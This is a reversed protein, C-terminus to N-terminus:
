PHERRRMILMLNWTALERLGPVEIIWSLWGPYYRPGAELIELDSRRRAARLVHGVRIPFLSTGFLNKPPQGHRREYRAAARRGGLYHWPSTEHGGWPSWWATFSLYLLGGPRTVRAMEGLFREPDPVHELVNSSFTVDATGDPFPLRNGDAAVTAGPALRGARIARAHQEAREDGRPAGTEDPHAAEPEVLFCRGGEARFAETFWGGGGGIDLVTLGAVDTHRHVQAMTDAAQTRYFLEPDSQEHLFARFMRVSRRLGTGTPSVPLHPGSPPADRLAPGSLGSM